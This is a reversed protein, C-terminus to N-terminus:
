AVDEMPGNYVQGVELCELCCEVAEKISVLLPRWTSKDRNVAEVDKTNRM